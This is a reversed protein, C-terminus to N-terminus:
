EFRQKMEFWLQEIFDFMEENRVILYATFLELWDSSLPWHSGLAYDFLM